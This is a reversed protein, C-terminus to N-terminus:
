TLKEFFVEEDPPWGEVFVSEEIGEESIFVYSCGHKWNSEPFFNIFFVYGNKEFEGDYVIEGLDNKVESFNLKSQGVFCEAGKPLLDFKEKFFLNIAEEKKM